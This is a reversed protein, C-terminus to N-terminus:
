WSIFSLDWSFGPVGPVLNFTKLFLRVTSHWGIQLQSYWRATLFSLMDPRMCAHSMDRSSSDHGTLILWTGHPHTMDRRISDRRVVSSFPYTLLCRHLLYHRWYVWCGGPLCEWFHARYDNSITLQTVFRSKLIDVKHDDMSLRTCRRQHPSMGIPTANKVHSLRSLLGIRPPLPLLLHSPLQFPNSCM